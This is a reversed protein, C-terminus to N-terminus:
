DKVLNVTFLHSPGLNFQTRAQVCQAAAEASVALGAGITMFYQLLRLTKELAAADDAFKVTASLM